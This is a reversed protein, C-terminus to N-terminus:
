GRPVLQRLQWAQLQLHRHAARAQTRMADAMSCAGVILAIAGIGIGIALKVPHTDINDEIVDSHHPHPEAM